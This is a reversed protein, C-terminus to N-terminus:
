LNPDIVIKQGADLAMAIDDASLWIYKSTSCTVEYPAGKESIMQVSLYHYRAPIGGMMDKLFKRGDEVTKISDPLQMGGGFERVSQKLKELTLKESKPFTTSALTFKAGEKIHRDVKKPNFNLECIEIEPRVKPENRNVFLTLKSTEGPIPIFVKAILDEAQASTNISLFALVFAFFTMKM